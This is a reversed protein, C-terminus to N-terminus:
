SGPRLAYPSVIEAANFRHDILGSKAAADILPQLYRVEVYEPDVVRTSRRIVAPDIGSYAAVLDVTQDLHANTYLIAEHMARAFRNMADVNKRAADANVVYASSEFHAGITDLSKALMRVKGSSLAQELFPTTLTGADIRGAEIAPLVGAQPLEVVHVTRHDGGTQDIWAFTAATFLDKLSSAGITKGALERGTRIPSDSRVLLMTVPRDSSYLNSPVIIQFPIGQLHAQAVPLLSTSIVDLSGGAVAALGASGSNVTTIEVNLGYKQFLGASRAYYLAKSADSATAGVNLLPLQQGSLPARAPAAVIAGVLLMRLINSRRYQV